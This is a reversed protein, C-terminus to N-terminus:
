TKAWTTSPLEGAPHNSAPAIGGIPESEQGWRHGRRIRLVTIRLVGYVPFGISVLPSSSM